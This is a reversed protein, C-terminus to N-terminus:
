SAAGSRREYETAPRYEEVERLALEQEALALHRELEAVRAKLANLERMIMYGPTEGLYGLPTRGGSRVFRRAPEDLYGLLAKGGVVRGSPPASTQATEPYDAPPASDESETEEVAKAEQLDEEVDPSDVKGTIDERQDYDIDPTSQAQHNASQRPPVRGVSKQTDRTSVRSLFVGFASYPDDRQEALIINESDTRYVDSDAGESLM